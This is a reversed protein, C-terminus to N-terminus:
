HITKTNRTRTRTIREVADDEEQENFVDFMEEQEEESAEEVKLDSNNMELVYKKYENIASDHVDTVVIISDTPINIIGCKAVKIWPQMTFSEILFPGRSYLINNLIVPDSVSISKNDKFNKCDSDTTVIINDGNTLKIYKCYM